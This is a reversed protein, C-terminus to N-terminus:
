AKNSDHNEGKTLSKVLGKEFKHFLRIMLPWVVVYAITGCIIKGIVIYLMQNETM